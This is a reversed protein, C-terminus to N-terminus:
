LIKIAYFLMTSMVPKVASAWDFRGSVSGWSYVLYGDKIIVGRYAPTSSTWGTAARLEDLKAVDLGVEAPTRTAWATGPDVARVPTTAFLLALAAGAMAALGARLSIMEM